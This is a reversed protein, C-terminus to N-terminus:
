KRHRDVVRKVISRWNQAALRMFGDRHERIGAYSATWGIHITDKGYKASNIVRNIVSPRYYYRSDPLPENGSIASPMSSLSARISARLYGTEVRMNGGQDTTRQAEEVLEKTAEHWIEEVDGKTRTIWGKVGRSFPGVDTM